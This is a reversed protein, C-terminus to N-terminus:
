DTFETVVFRGLKLREAILNHGGVNGIGGDSIAGRGSKSHHLM